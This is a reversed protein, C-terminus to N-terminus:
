LQEQGGEENECVREGERKNERSERRSRERGGVGGERRRKERRGELNHKTNAPSKSLWSATHVGWHRSTHAPAWM